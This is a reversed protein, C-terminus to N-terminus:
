FECQKKKIPRLHTLGQVAQCHLKKEGKMYPMNAKIKSIREEMISM